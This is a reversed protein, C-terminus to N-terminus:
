WFRTKEWPKVRINQERTCPYTNWQNFSNVWKNVIWKTGTLVPCGGHVVYQDRKGDTTLGLWFGAAGKTPWFTVQDQGTFFTTAGGAPTDSLWGMVTGFIDGTEVLDQRDETLEVGENYGYPDNHDECLGGLGYSTMQFFSSSYQNTVNMNIAKEIRSAIKEARPYLVTSNDPNYQRPFMRSTMWAQVSKHVTRTTKRERWDNKRRVRDELIPIDRTRSLRPRAWDVLYNTDEETFLEHIVMLFPQHHVIELKFPGLKTFPDKHHVLRCQHINGESPSHIGNGLSPINKREIGGCSKLMSDTKFFAGADNSIAPIIQETDILKKSTVFKPQKKRRELNGDLMYPTFVYKDTVVSKSKELYGNHKTLIDSKLKLLSKKFQKGKESHEENKQANLASKVINAATGLYGFEDARKAIVVLDISSLKKIAKIPESNRINKAEIFGYRFREIDLEYSHIMVVIANLAKYFDEFNLTKLLNTNKYVKQAEEKTQNSKIDSLLEELLMANRKILHYVNIPHQVYKEPKIELLSSNFEEKLFKSLIDDQSRENIRYLEQLFVLDEKYLQQLLPENEMLGFDFENSSVKGLICTLLIVLTPYSINM